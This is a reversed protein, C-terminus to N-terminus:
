EWIWQFLRVRLVASIFIARRQLSHDIDESVLGPGGQLYGRPQNLMGLSTEDHVGTVSGGVGSRAIKRPPVRKEGLLDTDPDSRMLLNTRPQTMQSKIRGGVNGCDNESMLVMIVRFSKM